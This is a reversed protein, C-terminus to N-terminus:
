SSELVAVRRELKQVADLLLIPLMGHRISYPKPEGVAEVVTEDRGSVKRRTQDRRLNVLEPIVPYVDEAIVGFDEQGASGSNPGWTFSKVDLEYLLSSNLALPRENVKYLRSSTVSHLEGSGNINLDTSAGAALLDNMFIGGDHEIVMREDLTTTTADVTHFALEGGRASGSFTEIATARISAGAEVSDGDSGSFFIYGFVDGSDVATLTGKTANNAHGLTFVPAGAATTTQNLIFLGGNGKSTVIFVAQSNNGSITATHGIVLDGSELLRIRETLTEAGDATTYFMIRGPMDGTGPTGDVAFEIAAAPSEIDTGDDGYAIISGLIEGSTVATGVSITAAGGKVLAVTPAAARTATTSFAALMLTSDVQGTGLVQVEPILNTSGDGTSITLQSTDGILLGAANDIVVDQAIRTRYQTGTNYFASARIVPSSNLAM